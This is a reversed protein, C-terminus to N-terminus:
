VWIIVLCTIKKVNLKPSWRSPTQLLFVDKSSLLFVDKSSSKYTIKPKLSVPNSTASCKLRFGLGEVEVRLRLRFLYNQADGPRPKFYSLVQTLNWVCMHVMDKVDKSSLKYTIKPKLSVPNSTIWIIFSMKVVWNSMKVVWNSM